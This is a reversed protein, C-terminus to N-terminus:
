IILTFICWLIGCLLPIAGCFFGVLIPVATVAKVLNAFWGPVEEADALETPAGVTTPPTESAEKGWDFGSDSM